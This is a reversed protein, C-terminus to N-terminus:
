FQNKTKRKRLDYFFDSLMKSAQERLVGSIIEPKHNFNYDNLNIVSGFVGAKKDECGYIVRRIRSNIIAGGCMPCPELTVYLDCDVLRWFGTIECAAEIAAIEAHSVANRDCERRNYGTAIIRGDKVIVCGVPTEDINRAIEAQEIASKMFYEHINNNIESM